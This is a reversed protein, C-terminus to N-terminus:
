SQFVRQIGELGNIIISFDKGENEGYKMLWYHNEGYHEDGPSDDSTVYIIKYQNGPLAYPLDGKKSCGILTALIIITVLGLIVKKV